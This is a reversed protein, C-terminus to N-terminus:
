EDKDDGEISKGNINLESRGSVNWRGAKIACFIKVLLEPEGKKALKQMSWTIEAAAAAVM